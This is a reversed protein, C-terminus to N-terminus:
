WKINILNSRIYPAAPMATNYTRYLPQTYPHEWGSIIVILSILFALSRKVTQHDFRMISSRKKRIFSRIHVTATKM